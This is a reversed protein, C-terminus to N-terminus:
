LLAVIVAGAAICGMVVIAALILGVPATCRIQDSVKM